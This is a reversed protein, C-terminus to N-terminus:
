LGKCVQELIAIETQYVPVEVWDKKCSVKKWTTFLNGSLNKGAARGRNNALRFSEISAINEFERFCQSSNPSVMSWKEDFGGPMSQFVEVSLSKIRSAISLSGIIESGGVQTGTRPFMVGWSTCVPMTSPPFAPLFDMNISCMASGPGISSPAGAATKIAGQIMCAKPSLKWALFKPQLSDGSGSGWHTNLHESMGDFCMKEQREGGCPLGSLVMQSLPVAITRGQFSQSDDDNAVGFPKKSVSGLQMAAGPLSSFHSAGSKVTTEIFTQPVYYSIRACPRPPYGCTTPSTQFQLCSRFSPQKLVDCINPFANAQSVGLMATLMILVKKIFSKHDEPAKGGLLRLVETHPTEPKNLFNPKMYLKKFTTSVGDFVLAWAEFTKLATFEKGTVLFEKQKSTSVSESINANKSDFGGILLNRETKQAIESISHSEKEREDQGVLKQISEITDVDGSHFAIRTRFNQILEKVAKDSKLSNQLASVSQTAAFTIANSERAKALYRGDDIGNGGGSTAVDQYEEWFSIAPIKKGRKDDVVRSLVSQQYQLKLMTGMSKALPPSEVDFLIIEGNDIVSDISKITIDEKKPCFVKAARYEQFQNLFSTATALIGSKVKTDMAKYEQSFYDIACNINYIEEGDFNQILVDADEGIEENNLRSLDIADKLSDSLDMEVAQIMAKYIDKLTFYDSTAACYVICNKILNYASIDWFPSDSKGGSFNASSARVMEAMNLFTSGKLPKEIYVPNFTVKGDLSVRHVTANIKYKKILKYAEKIFTRKPDLALISSEEFNILCQKFYPLIAGATKGSGVSGTIFVSGNLGRKSVREWEVPEENEENITGLVLSESQENLEPVANEEKPKFLWNQFNIARDVLFMYLVAVNLVFFGYQYYYISSTINIEIGSLLTKELYYAVVLGSFLLTSTKLISWKKREKEKLARLRAGQKSLGILRRFFHVALISNVFLVSAYTILYWKLITLTLTITNSNAVIFDKNQLGLFIVVAGVFMLLAVSLPTDKSDNM